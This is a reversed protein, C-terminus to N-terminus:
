LAKCISQIRLENWTQQQLHFVFILQGISGPFICYLAENQMSAQEEILFHNL